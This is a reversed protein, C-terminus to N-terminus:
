QTGNREALFMELSRAAYLPQERIRSPSFLLLCLYLLDPATLM